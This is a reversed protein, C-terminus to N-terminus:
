YQLNEGNFHHCLVCVALDREARARVEPLVHRNECSCGGNLPPLYFERLAPLVSKVKRLPVDNFRPLIMQDGNGFSHSTNRRSPQEAVYAGYIRFDGSGHQRM